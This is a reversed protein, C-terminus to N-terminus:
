KSISATNIKTISQKIKKIKHPLLVSHYGIYIEISENEFIVIHHKEKFINKKLKAIDILFPGISEIDHYYHYKM